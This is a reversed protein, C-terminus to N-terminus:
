ERHHTGCHEVLESRVPWAVAQADVDEIVATATVEARKGVLYPNAVDHSRVVLMGLSAVEIVGQADAVTFQDGNKVAVMYRHAGEKLESDTPEELVWAQRQHLSGVM